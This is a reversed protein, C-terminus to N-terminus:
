VTELRCGQRVGALAPLTQMSGQQKNSSLEAYHKAKQREKLAEKIRDIIALSAISLWSNFPQALAFRSM